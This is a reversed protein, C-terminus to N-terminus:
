YQLSDNLIFAKDEGTRAGLDNVSLGTLNKFAVKVV